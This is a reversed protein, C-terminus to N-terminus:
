IEAEVDGSTSCYGVREDGRGAKKGSEDGRWSIMTMMMNIVTM